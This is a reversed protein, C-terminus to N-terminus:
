TPNGMTFCKAEVIYSGDPMFGKLNYKFLFLSSLCEEKTSYPMSDNTILCGDKFKPSQELGCVLILAVFM